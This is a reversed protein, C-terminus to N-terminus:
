ENDDSGATTDGTLPPLVNTLYQRPFNGSLSYNAVVYLRNSKSRAWAFGVFKSAKWV